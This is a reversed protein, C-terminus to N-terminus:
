DQRLISKDINTDFFGLRGQIKVFKTARTDRLIFGYPGTFWDQDLYWDRRVRAARRRLAGTASMRWPREDVHICDVLVAEGVIGGIPLEQPFSVGSRECATRVLAVADREITMSAHILFRGRFSTRWTRNEVDKFGNVILWAYPQRVSLAKM